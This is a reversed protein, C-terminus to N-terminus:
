KEEDVIGTWLCHGMNSALGDVPAKDADLAMAFFGQEELWFDRNFAVKLSEARTRLQEALETDGGETAFHSRAVLAAYVYGQVECMAIPARALRGDAFRIADWSDKWGQNVLGRDSAREYEVYGDGDKDGFRTIGELARDAAPLLADVEGRRNGWRQLEGLVMVFLPTADATGYYITGGGLSIGAAEGFRMEHLIRGPEEETLPNVARGQFRALTQLTGLALDPDVMMSRFLTPYPFLTSRPPRRIM